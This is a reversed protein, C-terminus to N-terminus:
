SYACAPRWAHFRECATSVTLRGQHKRILCDEVCTKHTRTRTREPFGFWRPSHEARLLTRKRSELRGRPRPASGTSAEVRVAQLLTARNPSYPFSIGNCLRIILGVTGFGCPLSENLSDVIQNDSVALLRHRMMSARQNFESGRCDPFTSGEFCPM